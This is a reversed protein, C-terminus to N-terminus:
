TVVRAEAEAGAATPPVALRLLALGCLAVAAVYVYYPQTTWRALLLPVTVVLAGALAAAGLTAIRARAVLVVALVTLAIEVAFALEVLSYPDTYQALTALLNAGWVDQHFTFVDLQRGVFAGADMLLFPAAFAAAVGLAVLAYRRWDAQRVALHRLVPPLVLVAFQKFALAWGFLAASAIFAARGSRTPGAFALTALAAVVLLSASVDNQGDIARFGAIGWSAYLMAPLAVADFGARMGIAVIAVVVLIGSVTDVRSLDGAFLHAPLYYALEGPPYVFPSGPPITSTFQHTYPNGGALVVDLAEATARM